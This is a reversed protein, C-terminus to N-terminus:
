AEKAEDRVGVEKIIVAEITIEEANEPKMNAYIGRDLTSTSSAAPEQGYAGHARLIKDKASQSDYMEFETTHRETKNGDKDTRMIKTTKVRKLLHSLGKQKAKHLDLIVNGDADTTFFEGIDARAEDSLRALAEVASMVTDVLLANVAARIDPKALNESAVSRLTRYNGKYGAQEASRVGNSSAAYNIVFLRQKQTLGELASHELLVLAADPAVGGTRTTQTQTDM